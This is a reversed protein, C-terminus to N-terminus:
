AGLRHLMEFLRGIQEVGYPARSQQGDRFTTDTVWIHEPANLPVPNAEFNVMPPLSYPYFDRFYDPGDPSTHDTPQAFTLWSATM